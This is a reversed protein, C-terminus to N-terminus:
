AGRAVAFDGGLHYGFAHGLGARFQDFSAVSSEFNYGGWDGRCCTFRFAEPRGRQFSIDAGGILRPQRALPQSTDVRQALALQLTKFEGTNGRYDPLRM